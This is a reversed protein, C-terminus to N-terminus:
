SLGGINSWTLIIDKYSTKIEPSLVLWLPVVIAVIIAIIIGIRKKM